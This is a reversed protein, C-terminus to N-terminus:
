HVRWKTGATEFREELTRGLRKARLGAIGSNKNPLRWRGDKVSCCGLLDGVSTALDDWFERSSTLSDYGSVFLVKRKSYTCRNPESTVPTRRHGSLARDPIRDLVKPNNSPELGRCAGLDQPPRDM